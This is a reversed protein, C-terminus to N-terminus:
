RVIRRHYHSRKQNGRARPAIFVFTGSHLNSEICGIIEFAPSSNRSARPFKNERHAVVYSNSQWERSIAASIQRYILEEGHM